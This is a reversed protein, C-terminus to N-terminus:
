GLLRDRTDMENLFIGRVLNPPGDAVPHPRKSPLARALPVNGSRLAVVANEGRDLLYLQSSGALIPRTLAENRVAAQEGRNGCVSM